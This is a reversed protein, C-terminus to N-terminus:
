VLIENASNGYVRSASVMRNHVFYLPSSLCAAEAEGGEGARCACLSLFLAAALCLAMGRKPMKRQNAVCPDRKLKIKQM